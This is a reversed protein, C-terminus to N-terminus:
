SYAYKLRPMLWLIANRIWGEELLQTWHRIDQPLTKIRQSLETASISELKDNKADYVWVMEGIKSRDGYKTDVVTDSHVELRRNLSATTLVSSSRNAYAFVDRVVYSATFTDIHCIPGLQSYQMGSVFLTENKGVKSFGSNQRINQEVAEMQSNWNKWHDGLGLFAVVWVAAVFRLLQPRNIILLFSTLLLSGYITVRDGLNFAIQPYNGTLAFIVFASLCTASTGITLIRYNDNNICAVKRSIRISYIAIIAAAGVAVSVTEISGISYVTKMWASPGLGADVFSVIQMVYNKTLQWVDTGGTLRKTGLALRSSSYLYYAAYILNPILMAAAQRWRRQLAFMLALGTALPPSGYSTFSAAFAATASLKLKNIDALAYAYLYLGMSILLYQGTLWLTAGDHTPFCVLILAGVTAREPDFFRRFFERIGLFSLFLYLTKALSYGPLWTGFLYYLSAHTYHLLPVSIYETPLWNDEWSRSTGNSLHVFDDTAFGSGWCAWAFILLAIASRLLQETRHQFKVFSPM